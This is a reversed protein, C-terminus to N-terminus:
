QEASSSETPKQETWRGQVGCLNKPRCGFSRALGTVSEEQRHLRIDKWESKM